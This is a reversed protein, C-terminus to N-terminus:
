ESANLVQSAWVANRLNMSDNSCGAILFLRHAGALAETLCKPPWVYKLSTQPFNGVPEKNCPVIVRGWERRERRWQRRGGRGREWSGLGVTTWTCSSTTKLSKFYSIAVLPVPIEYPLVAANWEFFLSSAAQLKIKLLWDPFPYLVSPDLPM